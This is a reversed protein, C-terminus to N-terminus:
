PEEDDGTLDAMYRRLHLINGYEDLENALFQFIAEEVVGHALGEYQDCKASAVENIACSNDVYGDPSRKAWLGVNGWSRAGTFHKM